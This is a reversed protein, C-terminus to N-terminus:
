RACKCLTYMTRRGHAGIATLTMGCSIQKGNMARTVTAAASAAAEAASPGPSCHAVAAAGTKIFFQSKFGLAASTAHSYGPLQACHRVQSFKEPTLTFCKIGGLKLSDRTPPKRLFPTLYRYCKIKERM